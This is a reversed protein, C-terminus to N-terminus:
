AEEIIINIGHLSSVLALQPVVGGTRRNGVDELVLVIDEVRAALEEGFVDELLDASRGGDVAILDVRQGKDAALRVLVDKM